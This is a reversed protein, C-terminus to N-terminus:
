GNQNMLEALYPLSFQSCHVSSICNGFLLLELIILVVELKIKSKLGKLDHSAFGICWDFRVVSMFCSAQLVHGLFSLIFCADTIHWIIVKVIPNETLIITAWGVYPLFRNFALLSWM